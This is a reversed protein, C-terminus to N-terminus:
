ARERGRAREGEREIEYLGLLSYTLKEGQGLSLRLLLLFMHVM